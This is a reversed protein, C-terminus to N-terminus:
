KKKIELVELNHKEPIYEDKKKISNMTEQFMKVESLEKRILKLGFQEKKAINQFQTLTGDRDPAMLIARAEESKDKLLISLSNALESHYNRFFLVDAGCILDFNGNEEKFNDYDKWNFVKASVEIDLGTISVTNLQICEEIKEVCPAVGDTIYIEIKELGHFLSGQEKYLKAFWHALAIGCVGSYGAGIELIRYVKGSGLRIEKESLTQKFAEFLQDYLHIMYITLIEESPWMLFGTTDLKNNATESVTDFSLSVEPKPILIEIDELHQFRYKFYQSDETKDLFNKFNFIHERPNGITTKKTLFLTKLRHWKSNQALKRVKKINQDKLTEM